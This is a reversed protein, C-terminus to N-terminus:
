DAHNKKEIMALFLKRNHPQKKITHSFFLYKKEPILDAIPVEKIGLLIDRDNLDEKINIGAEEYEKDAFARWASPQICIDVNDFDNKIQAAQSPIVPVRKDHPIKGERLIGAKIKSM